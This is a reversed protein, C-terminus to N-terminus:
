RISSPPLRKWADMLVPMGQSHKAPSHLQYSAPQTRIRDERYM